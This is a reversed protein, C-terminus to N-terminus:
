YTSLHHGKIKKDTSSFTSLNLRKVPDWFSVEKNVIRENIFVAAKTEGIDKATLIETTFQHPVVAGSVINTLCMKENEKIGFPNILEEEIKSVIKKVAAEDKEIRKMSLGMKNIKVKCLERFKSYVAARVHSSLTWKEVADYDQSIGIIGGKTKSDRNMSQELAMDTSVMNFRSDTPSRSVTHCGSQFREHLDPHDIPLRLMDMIYISGWKFYKFHDFARDYKLMERFTELHLNWDARREASIANLLLKVMNLYEIWFAFTESTAEGIRNFRDILPQISNIKDCM